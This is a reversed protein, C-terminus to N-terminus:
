NRSNGQCKCATKIILALAEVVNETSMSPKAPKDLVQKPLYPIHVFGAKLQPQKTAAYHLTAYMLHNCVFTGASNSVSAPIGAQHLAQVIDKIPLSTFYAAPGEEVIPSDIRQVGENDNIRADDINIAIRELSIASRGGAQGVSIVVDPLEEVLAAYLVDFSKGFVTPIERKIIKIGELEDPLIMLAELAPNLKEGGFPDFATVLVKKM